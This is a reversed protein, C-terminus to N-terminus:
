IGPGLAASANVRLLTIPGACFVIIIRGVPPLHRLWQYRTRSDFGDKSEALFVIANELLLSLTSRQQCPHVKASIKAGNHCANM